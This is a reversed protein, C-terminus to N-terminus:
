GAAANFNYFNDAAILEAVAPDLRRSPSRGRGSNTVSRGQVGAIERCRPDLRIQNTRGAASSMIASLPGTSRLLASCLDGTASDLAALAGRAPASVPTGYRRLRVALVHALAATAWDTEPQQALRAAGHKWRFVKRDQTETEHRTIEASASDPPVLARFSRSTLSGPRTEGTERRASIPPRVAARRFRGGPKMFSRERQARQWAQIKLDPSKGPHM